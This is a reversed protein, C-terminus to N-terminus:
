RDGGSVKQASNSAPAESAVKFRLESRMQDLYKRLAESKELDSGSLEWPMKHDREQLFEALLKDEMVSRTDLFAEGRDLGDKQAKAALARMDLYSTLLKKRAGPQQFVYPRQEPRFADKLFWRFDSELIQTGGITALVANTDILWTFVLPSDNTALDTTKLGVEAKIADMYRLKNTGSSDKAMAELKARDRDTIAKVLLKMDMLQCAKQFTSEKDIGEQRAKAAMVQLDFFGELAADRASNNTRIEDVSANAWGSRLYRDFEARTIPVNGMTALVAKEGGDARAQGPYLMVALIM